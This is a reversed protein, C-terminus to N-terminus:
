VQLAPGQLSWLVKETYWGSIPLKHTECLFISAGKSHDTFSLSKTLTHPALGSSGLQSGVSTGSFSCFTVLPITGAAQSKHENKAPGEVGSWLHYSHVSVRSLLSPSLSLPCCQHPLILSSWVPAGAAAAPPCPCARLRILTM